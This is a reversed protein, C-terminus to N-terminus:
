RGWSRRTRGWSRRARGDGDNMRPRLHACCRTRRTMEKGNQRERARKSITGMSDRDGKRERNQETTCNQRDEATAERRRNAPCPRRPLLGRSGCASSSKGGLAVCLIHQLIGYKTAISV